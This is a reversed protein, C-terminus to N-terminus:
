KEDWTYYFASNVPTASQMNLHNAQGYVTVCGPVLQAQHTIFENIYRVSVAVTGHTLKNLASVSNAQV